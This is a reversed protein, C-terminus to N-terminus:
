SATSDPQLTARDDLVERVKSALMSPTFPKQLFHTGTDLVGHHVIANETYGSMFLVKAAPNRSLITQALARGSIGPMVVDTLLLHIGPARQECINQAEQSDKPAVISYGCSALISRVLERLAQDDEVLLITETGRISSAAPQRASVTEAAQETRPLYVKFTTGHGLESYVWIHGGSQKVIGYVMSLGLGTGRGLEKTTFFPEFIRAQTEPTMGAGTDSVALMVYPGPSVGPHDAAYSKDLDVNGTELTLRGGEPMADRANLVLNMFVQEIQVADAQVQGLNPATITQLDIHEGILRQLLSGLNEVLSNLNIVRPQLVQKRSFALLQQTLSAAREAAEEIKKVQGHAARDNKLHDMLMRSYGEIVTLLNNFDHAIGGALRGIAEMKQSQRLKEELNRRESIDVLTGETVDSGDEDKVEVVNQIVWVLSGDKRLYCIEMDKEQRKKLFSALRADREEKGGPYLVHAPLKLLEERTYGFLESFAQNCDLFRGQQTSRFVGARNREFLSRYRAESHQLAKTIREREVIDGELKVNLLRLTRGVAYVALITLFTTFSITTVHSQWLSIHPFLLQKFVEYVFMLAAVAIAALFTLWPLSIRRFREPV